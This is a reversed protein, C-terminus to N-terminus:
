KVFLTESLSPGNQWPRCFVYIYYLLLSNDNWFRIFHSTIVSFSLTAYSPTTLTTQIILSQSDFALCLHGTFSGTNIDTM